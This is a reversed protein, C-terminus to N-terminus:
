PRAIADRYWDSNDSQTQPTDTAPLTAPVFRPDYAALAHEKAVEERLITELLLLLDTLRAAEPSHGFM